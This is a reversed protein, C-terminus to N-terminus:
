SIPPADGESIVAAPTPRIGSSLCAPTIPSSVTASFITMSCRPGKVERLKKRWSAGKEKKIEKEITEELDVLKDVLKLIKSLDGMIGELSIRHIGDRALRVNLVPKLLFGDRLGTRM